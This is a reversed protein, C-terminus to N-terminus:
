KSCGKQRKPGSLSFFVIQNVYGLLHLKGFVSHPVVINSVTHLVTRVRDGKSGKSGLIGRPGPNGQSLLVVMLFLGFSIASSM